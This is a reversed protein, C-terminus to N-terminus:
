VILCIINTQVHVHLLPPHNMKICYQTTQSDTDITDLIIDISSLTCHGYHM